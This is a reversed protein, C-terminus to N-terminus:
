EDAAFPMSRGFACDLAFQSYSWANCLALSADMNQYSWTGPRTQDKIIQNNQWHAGEHVLVEAQKFPGLGAYIPKFFIGDPWLPGPKPEQKSREGRLTFAITDSDFWDVQPDRFIANANADALTNEAGRYISDISELFSRLTTIEPFLDFTSGIPMVPQKFHFWVKDFNRLVKPPIPLSKVRFEILERLVARTQTVISRARPLGDIAADRSSM